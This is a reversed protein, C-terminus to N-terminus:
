MLEAAIGDTLARAESAVRVRKGEIVIAGRGRLRELARARDATLGIVGLAAGAEELDLGEALRLGLMIRERLRVEGDLEEREVHTQAGALADTMYRAPDATNRTRVAIGSAGTVTGVAGCGLGLYDVGRWYGLNHRAEEGPLAYNSIEYHSFGAGVLAQEVAFFGDVIADDTAIPLKGRRALAGFPTGPEITLGYASVHTAGASAVALVERAADRPTEPNGGAVGFLLDGSVRSFGAARAGEIALLGGHEDHLRGLFALRERDLSQVGVSLRNVGVDFLARARDRDLSTPNCEVTIEVDEARAKLAAMIGDKVRGLDRPDWLSPTGGGFFITVLRRGEVSAAKASLEALVADAYRASPIAPREAAYSAFDCYPCKKLCYPFHVYALVDTM